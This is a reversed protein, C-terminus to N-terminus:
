PFLLWEMSQELLFWLRQILILLDDSKQPFTMLHNFIYDFDLFWSFKSGCPHNTAICSSPVVDIDARCTILMVSDSKMNQKSEITVDLIVSFAQVKTKMWFVRPCTARASKSTVSFGLVHETTRTCLLLGDLAIPSSERINELLITKLTKIVNGWIFKDIIVTQNLNHGRSMKSRFISHKSGVYFAEM